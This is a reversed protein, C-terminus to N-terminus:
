FENYLGEIINLLKIQGPVVDKCIHPAKTTNYPPEIM